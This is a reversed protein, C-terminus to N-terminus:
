SRQVCLNVRPNQPPLPTQYKLASKSFDHGLTRMGFEVASWNLKIENSMSGACLGVFLLDREVETNWKKEPGKKETKDNAAAM